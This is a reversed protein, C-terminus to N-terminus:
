RIGGGLRAALELGHDWVGLDKGVSVDRAVDLVVGLLVREDVRVDAVGSDVESQELTEVVEAEAGGLDLKVAGRGILLPQGVVIVGLRRRVVRVSPVGQDAQGDRAELCPPGVNVGDEVVGGDVGVTGGLADADLECLVVEGREVDEEDPVGEHELGVGVAELAAVGAVGVVDALEAEGPGGEALDEVDVRHLVREGARGLHEEVGHGALGGLQGRVEAVGGRVRLVVHGQVHVEEVDRLAVVVEYVLRVPEEPDAARRQMPRELARRHGVEGQLQELAALRHVAVPSQMEADLEDPPRM